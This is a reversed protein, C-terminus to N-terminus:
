SRLATRPPPPDASLTPSAYSARGASLGDHAPADFAALASAPPPAATAGCATALSCGGGLHQVPSPPHRQDDQREAPAPAPAHHGHHISASAAVHEAQGAPASGMPCDAAMAQTWALCVLLLLTTLTRMM